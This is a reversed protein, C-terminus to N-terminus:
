TCMREMVQWVAEVSEGSCAYIRDYLNVTPDCHPPIFEIRDGLKPKSECNAIDVYGFEDGGWRYVAGSMSAPEPGYARDTSFAKFGADVTVFGEHNASIVAAVVTSAQRFDIGMRRYQLDMMVYSGAQLETVDPLALDIDWTGTSGGSLIEMRHGLRILENRTESVIQFSASSIRRREETSSGHSGSVSYGQLGRLKLHGAQEVARAIGAIQEISGAGTRHDGVDLDILVDVTRGADRAAQEYWEVQQVHDVVVMAGTRVIRGMKRPDAVPSTLLLGSLGAKSMLEAEAVTAVCIGAAGAAIQRKAIEVCKHAKAHPRLMKGSSKVAGAMRMLNSEFADLDLALAPTPIDAKTLL